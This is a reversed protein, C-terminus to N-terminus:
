YKIQQMYDHNSKHELAVSRQQGTLPPPSREEQGWSEKAKHSIYEQWAAEPSWRQLSAQLFTDEFTYTPIPNVPYM